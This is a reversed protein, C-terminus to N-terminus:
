FHLLSTFTSTDSLANRDNKKAAKESDVKVTVAKHLSTLFNAYNTSASAIKAPLSDEILAEYFQPIPGGVGDVVLQIAFHGISSTGIINKQFFQVLNRAQESIHTPLEPLSDMKLDLDNVGKIHDGFLDALLQANTEPHVRVYVTTGDCLIYASPALSQATLPLFEPLKIFSDKEGAEIPMCDDDTFSHLEALAPYLHYVLRDLPMNLMSYVDVLREDIDSKSSDRLAKSKTLAMIFLPMHRLSDPFILKNTLSRSSNHSTEEMRRYQAYVDVLKSSISSRLEVISEKGVFSLTDRVLAAVVGDQDVFNFVDELRESVACVLNMVRVKRVGQPDTYLLAAQLHCDYKTNLTGDYELLITFTQDENLIPIIPDSTSNVLGIIGGESSPFGYYQAVQLGNSCRLKLQGQYGRSSEVSRVIQATLARSDREFDFESWKVMKGGTVSALWGINSVDVPTQSVAFVDLGVNQAIMDKALLKYYENDVSYLRKEVDATPNRGVTNNSKLKSGGPGWSPLTSLIATIKGGGVADLAMAAARLAVAFCPEPDHLTKGSGLSELNHLADEIVMGSEEPDAFLGDYFPVFPDDLDGSIYIHTAELSPSLNFFHTAKDFMIIAFKQPRREQGASQEDYDFLTARIADAVLMNLQKNISHQCIDVLFVHHLPEPTKEAGGVNYYDPVILDYVGLRLEPRHGRDVRQGYSDVPAVYEHPLFNNPFQCINCVFRGQINHVMFPNIYTRCRRCRPPGIDEPDVGSEQGLRSMDVTPIPEESTLQPAFPRITVAMPLRTAKRLQESEPVNYFTSRMHKPTATSQDVAFYQTGAFPPVVNEFSLFPKTGICNGEQDYLLTTYETEHDHRAKCLSLPSDSSPTHPTGSVDFQTEHLPENANLMNSYETRPQAPTITNPGFQASNDFHQQQQQQQQQQFAHAPYRQSQQTAFEDHGEFQPPPPAVPAFSAQAQQNVQNVDFFARQPRKKKKGDLSVNQIESALEEPTAM